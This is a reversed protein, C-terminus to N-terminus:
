DEMDKVLTTTSERAATVEQASTEAALEAM